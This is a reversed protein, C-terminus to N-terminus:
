FSFERIIYRINVHRDIKDDHNENPMVDLIINPIVDLILDLM